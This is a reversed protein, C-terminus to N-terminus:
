VAVPAKIFGQPDYGVLEIDEIRYSFIDKPTRNFRIKPFPSLVERSLQKEAADLHNEYIHTDGGFWQFDGTRLGTQQAMMHLFIGQQVLNFGLGLFTDCSRQFHILNLKDEETVIWQYVMHCPPLVADKLYAVNWAHFLNRRSYPNEKLQRITEEVQNVVGDPTDWAVWAKGYSPGVSGWEEAFDNDELVMREFDDRSIDKGLHKRYKELPWDTWIHVGQEVLPRINTSGSLFWLLEIAASKWLVKKTTLAPVSGDSLDFRLSAGAITRAGVGTRDMRPDGVDILDRLLKLYQHEPMMKQM